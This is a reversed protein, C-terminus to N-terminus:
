IYIYIHMSEIYYLLICYLILYLLTSYYLMIYHLIIRRRNDSFHPRTRGRGQLVLHWSGTVDSILSTMYMCICAYIYIYIYLSLSIYIHICIYIYIYIYIYVYDNARVSLRPEGFSSRCHWPVDSPPCQGTSLTAHSQM